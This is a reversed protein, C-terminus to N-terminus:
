LRRLFCCIKKRVAEFDTSLSEKLSELKQRHTEFKKFIRNIRRLSPGAYCGHMFEPSNSSSKDIDSFYNIGSDQFSFEDWQDINGSLCVILDSLLEIRQRTWDFCIKM